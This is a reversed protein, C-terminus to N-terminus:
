TSLRSAVRSRFGSSRPSQNYKTPKAASARPVFGKGKWRTTKGTVQLIGGSMLHRSNATKRVCSAVANFACRKTTVHQPSTGRKSKVKRTVLPTSDLEAAEEPCPKLKGWAAEATRRVAARCAPMHPHMVDAAADCSALISGPWPCLHAPYYIQFVFCPAPM